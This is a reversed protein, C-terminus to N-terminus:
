DGECRTCLNEGSPTMTGDTSGCWLCLTMVAQWLMKGNHTFKKQNETMDDTHVNGSYACRVVREKELEMLPRFVFTSHVKHGLRDEVAKRLDRFEGKWGVAFMELLIDKILPASEEGVHRNM